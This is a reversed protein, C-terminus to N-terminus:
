QIVADARALMSPPITLGLAKATKLNIVLEFKTPQEMPIEGARAGKLIKDVFTGARHSLAKADAGYAMLIGAAALEGDWAVAPILYEQALAAIGKRKGFFTADSLIVLGQARERKMAAFADTLERPDSISVRRVHLGLARAAAETENVEPISVPNRSNWMLAVRTLRPVLGKLLELRKGSTTPNISTVGTISGGPRALSQVLGTGLVDGCNFCVIPVSGTARRAIQAAQVGHVLIIAVKLQVLEAALSPLRDDHGEAWRYEIVLNENERYGLEAMGQRFADLRTAMAVPTAPSLFGVRHNGPAPQAEAAFPAALLAQALTTLITLRALRL